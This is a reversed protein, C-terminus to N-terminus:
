SEVDLDYNQIKNVLVDPLAINLTKRNSHSVKAEEPESTNVSPHNCVCVYARYCPAKPEVLVLCLFLYITVHM